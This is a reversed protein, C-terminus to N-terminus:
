IKKVILICYEELFQFYPVPVIFEKCASRSMLCEMFGAQVCRRTGTPIGGIDVGRFEDERHRFIKIQHRTFAGELNKEEPGRTIM